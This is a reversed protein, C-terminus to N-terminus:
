SLKEWLVDVGGDAIAPPTGNVDALQITCGRTFRLGRLPIPTVSGQGAVAAIGTRFVGIITGNGDALAADRLTATLQGNAKGDCRLTISWLRGAGNALVSAAAGNGLFTETTISQPHQYLQRPDPFAGM